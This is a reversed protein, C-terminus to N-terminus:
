PGDVEAHKYIDLEGLEEDPLDPRRVVEMSMGGDLVIIRQDGGLYFQVHDRLRRIDEDTMPKDSKFVLIDGAQPEYVQAPLEEWTPIEPIKVREFPNRVCPEPGAILERKLSAALRARRLEMEVQETMKRLDDESPM